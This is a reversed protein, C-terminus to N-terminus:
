ADVVAVLGSKALAEVFDEVDRRLTEPEVEFEPLLRQCASEVSGAETLAIWMRTGVDDLGFYSETDLNLLVSEGGLERVLVQEPKVIRGNM